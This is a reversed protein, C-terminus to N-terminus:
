SEGERRDIWKKLRYLTSLFATHTHHPVERNAMYGYKPDLRIVWGRYEEEFVGGLDDTMPQGRIV